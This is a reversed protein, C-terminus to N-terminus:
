LSTFPRSIRKCAIAQQRAKHLPANEIAEPPLDKLAFDALAIIEVLLYGRLPEHTIGDLDRFVQAPTAQIARIPLYRLMSIRFSALENMEQDQALLFGQCGWHFGPPGRISRAWSSLESTVNSASAVFLIVEHLRPTVPPWHLWSALHGILALGLDRDEELIIALQHPCLAAALGATSQNSKMPIGPPYSAVRGLGIGKLGPGTRCPLYNTTGGM